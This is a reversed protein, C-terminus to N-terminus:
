VKTKLIEEAESLRHLAIDYWKKDLEIGVFNRGAAVSAVGTSGSGMTSDLVTDGPNSYTEVLWELLQVPKETPHYRKNSSPPTFQLLNRPYGTTTQVREGTPRYVSNNSKGWKIPKDLKQVGQPNYTFDSRNLRFVAIEEIQRLPEKKSNLHNTPLPKMWYLQHHYEKRNSQILSSMFPETGFLIVQGNPRLVRHWETWLREIDIQIDWKCETNGYPLDCLVLNVSNDKIEGMKQLCDGHILVTNLM